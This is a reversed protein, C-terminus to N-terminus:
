LFVRTVRETSIVYRNAESVVSM